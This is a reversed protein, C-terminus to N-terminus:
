QGPPKVYKLDKLDLGAPYGYSVYQDFGYVDVAVRSEAAKGDPGLVPLGVVTHPGPDASLRAGKYKNSINFFNDPPIPEGDFTVVTDDACANPMAGAGCESDATCPKGKNASAAGCVRHIPAAISIYNFHYKEPTLFVYESRWQGAPIALLFAPDGTGADDPQAGPDPADQSAMFHGVLIPAATKDDHRAVIEFSDITEFEFWEGKDLVPVSIAKGKADKPQPVLNVITGNTAALLRWADREKGRPFLKVAVYHSDWVTVPIMQMELHDACCTVFSGCDENTACATKGDWACKGCKKGSSLDGAKCKSVDCHNSNPVNAAESGAFVAIKKDALIVAGTLDSGVMNTEINLTGWQSLTFSGSEGSKFSKISGDQSSLTLLPWTASSADASPSPFTITVNTQGGQAAVITIFSRLISFTEERTMAIYYTGLLEEPLLNTADNSYVGVNELPNFQYAAIPASSTVRWAQFSSSTADINRAPLNFVRLKGPLIPSLDLANGQADVTQHEEKGGEFYSIQVDSTLRDSPNSVVIAYQANAADYYSRAGGPVFANDLDAAWFACGVYSNAKVNIDCAKQCLGGPACQQGTASDCTEDKVWKGSDDCREVISSDTPACRKGLGPVCDACVGAGFCKTTVGGANTCLVTEFASGEDNCRIVYDDDACSTANHPLCIQGAPLEAVADAASVEVAVDAEQVAAAPAPTGCAAAWVVAGLLFGVGLRSHAGAFRVAEASFRTQAASNQSARM